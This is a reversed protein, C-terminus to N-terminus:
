ILETAPSAQRRRDKKQGCINSVINPPWSINMKRQLLTKFHRAAFYFPEIFGFTKTKNFLFISRVDENMIGGDVRIPEFSKVFILFYFKIDYLPGLAKLRYINCGYHSSLLRFEQTLGRFNKIEPPKKNRKM